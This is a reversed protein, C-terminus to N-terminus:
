DYFHDSAKAMATDSLLVYGCSHMKKINKEILFYMIISIYCPIKEIFNCLFLFFCKVFNKSSSVLFPMTYFITCRFQNSYFM